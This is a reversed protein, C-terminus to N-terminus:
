KERRMRSARLVQDHRQKGKGKAKGKGKRRENRMAINDTRKKQRAAMQATVQEKREDRTTIVIILCSEWSSTGQYNVCWTKKSRTKEKEKRKIAKKLLGENDKVKVGEIRAEAERESVVATLATPPIILHSSQGM